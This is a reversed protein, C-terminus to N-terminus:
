LINIYIIYSYPVTAVTEISTNQLTEDNRSELCVCMFESVPEAEAM